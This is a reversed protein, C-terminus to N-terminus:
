GQELDAIWGHPSGPPLAIRIVTRWDRWVIRMLAAEEFGAREIAVRSARNDVDIKTLIWRKGAAAQRDGLMAWTAPAIGRGRASKAAISDELGVVNDPLHLRAGAVPIFGALIWCTFVLEEGDLVVWPTSGDELRLRVLPETMPSVALSTDMGMLLPVDELGGPRLELGEELPPHPRDAREVDLMYWVYDIATRKQPKARNLVLKATGSVGNRRVARQVKRTVDSARAAVANPMPPRYGGTAAASGRAADTM